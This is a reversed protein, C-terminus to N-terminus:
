AAAGFLENGVSRTVRHEFLDQFEASQKGLDHWLGLLEGWDAAHFADAYERALKAVATAHTKLTEWDGEGHTPLTHAYVERSPLTM